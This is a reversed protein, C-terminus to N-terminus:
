AKDQHRKGVNDQRQEPSLTVNEKVVSFYEDRETATIEGRNFAELKDVIKELIFAKVDKPINGDRIEEYRCATIMDYFTEEFDVRTGIDIGLRDIKKDSMTVDLGSKGYTDIFKEDNPKVLNVVSKGQQASTEINSVIASEIKNVTVEM